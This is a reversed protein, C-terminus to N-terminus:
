EKKATTNLHEEHNQYRQFKDDNEDPILERAKRPFWPVFVNTEQSYQRFGPRKEFEKELIPIGSVYRVLLTIILPAYFTVWGYDYVCALLFIGWWFLSEGFYNPHRSYRWLGGKM